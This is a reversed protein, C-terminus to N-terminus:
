LSQTRPFGRDWDMSRWIGMCGPCVHRSAIRRIIVIAKIVKLLLKTGKNSPRHLEFEHSNSNDPKQRFRVLSRPISLGESQGVSGRKCTLDVSWITPHWCSFKCYSLSLVQTNLVLWIGFTPGRWGSGVRLSCLPRSRRWGWEVNSSISLSVINRGTLCCTTIQPDARKASSVSIRRAAPVKAVSSSEVSLRNPCVLLVSPYNFPDMLKVRKFCVGREVFDPAVPHCFRVKNPFSWLGFRKLM